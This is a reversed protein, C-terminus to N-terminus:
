DDLMRRHGAPCTGYSADYWGEFDDDYRVEVAYHLRCYLKDCSPCYADIGESLQEHVARVDGRGLREFIGPALAPDVVERRTIGEVVLGTGEDRWPHRELAFVAAKGGCVACPLEVLTPGRAGGDAAPRHAGIFALTERLRAHAKMVNAASEGVLVSLLSVHPGGRLDFLQRVLADLEALRAAVPSGIQEILAAPDARAHELRRLAAEFDPGLADRCARCVGDVRTRLAADVAQRPLEGLVFDFNARMEAALRRADRLADHIGPEM